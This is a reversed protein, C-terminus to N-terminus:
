FDALDLKTERIALLQLDITGAFLDFKVNVNVFNVYFHGVQDINISSIRFWVHVHYTKLGNIIVSVNITKFCTSVVVSGISHTENTAETSCPCDILLKIMAFVTSLPCIERKM